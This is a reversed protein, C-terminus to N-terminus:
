WELKQEKTNSYYFQLTFSHKDRYERNTHVYKENKYSYHVNRNKYIHVCVCVYVKDTKDWQQICEQQIGWTRIPKM